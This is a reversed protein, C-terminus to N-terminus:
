VAEAITKLKLMVPELQRMFGRGLLAAWLWGLPGGFRVRHTFELQANSPPITLFRHVTLKAAPLATTFTYSHLPQIQTVTFSSKQGNRTILWGTCGVQLSGDIGASSLPDDWTPWNPVDTWIRWLVEPSAQVTLTCRFDRPTGITQNM